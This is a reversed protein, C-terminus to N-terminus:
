GQVITNGWGLKEVKRDQEGGNTANSSLAGIEAGVSPFRTAVKTYSAFLGSDQVICLWYQSSM